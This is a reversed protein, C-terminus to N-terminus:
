KNTKFEHRYQYSPKLDIWITEISIIQELSLNSHDYLEHFLWCHHEGKMPHEEWHHADNHNIGNDIFRKTDPLSIKKLQGHYEYLPETDDEGSYFEIVLEFEYDIMGEVNQLLELQLDTDLRVARTYIQKEIVTLEANLEKLRKHMKPDITM